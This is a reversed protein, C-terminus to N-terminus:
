DLLIHHVQTGRDLVANRGGPVRLTISRADARLVREDAKRTTRAPYPIECLPYDTWQSFELNFSTIRTKASASTEMPGPMTVRPEDQEKQGAFTQIKQGQFTITTVFDCRGLVFSAYCTGQGGIIM